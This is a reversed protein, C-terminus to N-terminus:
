IRNDFYFHKQDSNTSASLFGMSGFLFCSLCLSGVAGRKMHSKQTEETLLLTEQPGRQSGQSLLSPSNVRVKGRGPARFLVGRKEWM